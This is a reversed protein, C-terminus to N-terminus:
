VNSPMSICPDYVERAATQGFAELMRASSIRKLARLLAEDYRAM